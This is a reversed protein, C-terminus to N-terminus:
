YVVVPRSSIRGDQGKLSVIWWGKQLDGTELRMSLEQGPWNLTKVRRGLADFLDVTTPISGPDNLVINVFSQTPNPSMQWLLPKGSNPDVAPTLEEIAQDMWALRELTWNRLYNIEAPYNHGIFNNPWVWESLVNWRQFNRYQSEGLLAALSDIVQTTQNDSLIGARLEQWRNGLEWRFVPDTLMKKWWFPIVWYDDPCVDNFDYAWGTTLGGDCYNANGFGLNFDWVPGMKWRPNKSDKDKYFFTSLRYGDVNKSVENVLLFDIFTQIDIHKKYGNQPDLYDEGYLANEFQDISEQVYDRQQQTIDEADPIEYLFNIEQFNPTEARYQSSFYLPFIPNDGTTKDLKLIYGGTLDDGENEDPDLKNINVRNADRKIKETFLYVGLYDGNIVLEVMRVRPAYEMTRGALIYTLANRILSKDSYPGHLVWDSEEPMGLLSVDLDEGEDDWTELGYGKKPFSQSSSGRIEIGIKGNYENFPDTLYNRQGPGKHIVGLQATIKPDDLIEQGMTNIVLIPLNSDTFNVQAGLGSCLTALFLLLLNRIMM